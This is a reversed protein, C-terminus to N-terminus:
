LQQSCTLRLLCNQRRIIQSSTEPHSISQAAQNPDLQLPLYFRGSFRTKLGHV